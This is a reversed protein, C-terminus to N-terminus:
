ELTAYIRRKGSGCSEEKIIKFKGLRGTSKVHPGNCVEKSFNGISYVKVREPYRDRFFALAGKKQSETFDMVEMKVPLNEKIKQNVLAEVQAIQEETLPAPHTFDFRLREPTIASGAQTVHKGLVERLARHLLHTATHLKVTELSRDALGGRFRNLAAKRSKEQHQKMLKKFGDVDVKAEPYSRSIEEQIIELPFGYTQYLDFAKDAPFLKDKIWKDKIKSLIKLGKDLTKLFKKEEEELTKQILSFNKDLEPYVAAYNGVVTQAIKPTFIEKIGLLRAQRVARRILRRLVYGQEVNSPLVGDAIVFCAGRIHDAIIRMQRKDGSKYRRQSLSELQEVIPWFLETLYDDNKGQLVSTTRELGMVTDVNRQPLPELGGDTKRNFVMFVNNWIEVYKGCSCGPGCKRSCNPRDPATDYFIETDPGCPGTEGAAWWNDEKGLFYIQSNSLGVARWLDATEEDRPSEEDGAFVSVRIRNPNLKLWKVLFEWSWSIAEKKFYDGLSWNGLMEFFTHHYEDGVMDIDDTRLCKQYNVLRKGLPHPEGLLYPVLPHMGASIFLTSSDGEPLLSASPLFVHDKKKFFSIYKDRLQKATIKSM